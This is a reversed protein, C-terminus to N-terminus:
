KGLPHPVLNRVRPAFFESPLQNLFMRNRCDAVIHSLDRRNVAERRKAIFQSM